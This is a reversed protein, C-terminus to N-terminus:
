DQGFFSSREERSKYTKGGANFISSKIELNQKKVITWRPWGELEVFAVFSEFCM